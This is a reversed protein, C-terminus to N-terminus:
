HVCSSEQLAAQGLFWLPASCGGLKETVWEEQSPKQVRIPATREKLHMQTTPDSTLSTQWSCERYCYYAQFASPLSFGLANAEIASTAWHCFLLFASLHAGALRVLVPGGM